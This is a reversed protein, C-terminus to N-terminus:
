QDDGERFDRAIQKAAAPNRKILAMIEGAMQEPSLYALDRMGAEGGMLDLIGPLIRGLAEPSRSLVRDAGARARDQLKANIKTPLKM